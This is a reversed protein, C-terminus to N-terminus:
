SIRKWMTKNNQTFRELIGKSQLSELLEIFRERTMPKQGTRLADMQYQMFLTNEFEYKASGFADLVVQEDDSVATSSTARGSIGGTEVRRSAVSAKATSSVAQAPKLKDFLKVGGNDAAVGYIEALLRIAHLAFDEMSSFYGKEVLQEIAEHLKSPLDISISTM